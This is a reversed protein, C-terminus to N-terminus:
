EINSRMRNTGREKSRAANGNEEEVNYQGNTDAQGGVRM